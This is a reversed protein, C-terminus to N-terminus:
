VKYFVELESIKKKYDVEIIKYRRVNRGTLTTLDQLLEQSKGHRLLDLNEYLIRYSETRNRRLFEELIL